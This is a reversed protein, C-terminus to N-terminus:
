SARDNHPEMPSPQHQSAVPTYKHFDRDDQLDNLIEPKMLVTPRLTNLHLLLFLPALPNPLVQRSERFLLPNKCFNARLYWFFTFSARTRSCERTADDGREESLGSRMQQRVTMSTAVLHTVLYTVLVGSDIAFLQHHIIFPRPRRAHDFIM